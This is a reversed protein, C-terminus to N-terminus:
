DWPSELKCLDQKRLQLYKNSLQENINKKQNNLAALVESGQYGMYDWYSAMFGCLAQSSSDALMAATNWYM